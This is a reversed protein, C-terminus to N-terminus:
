APRPLEALRMKVTTFGDFEVMSRIQLTGAGAGQESEVRVSLGDMSLVPVCKALTVPKGDIKLEIEPEGAFLEGLGDVASGPM